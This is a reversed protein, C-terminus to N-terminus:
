SSVEEATSIVTGMDAGRRFVNLLDRPKFRKGYMLLGWRFLRASSWTILAISLLLIIISLVLQWIPVAGFGFRMIMAMPATFPVLSLILPVGSGPHEIFTIMFFYPIFLIMTIIGAYQRSEQESGVVAGIGAMLTATMAYGLLFFTVAMVVLDLPLTVGELFDVRSGGIVLAVIGAVLWVALQTLGLLGLGIIKGTLLQMPTVSTVLIEMIRNTKEEVLGSMLFGSTMQAALTFVVAFAIPMVVLPILGEEDLVRGSDQIHVTLEAPHAIRATPIAVEVGAAINSMLLQDIFWYLNDPLNDYSYLRVASSEMYDPEIVIYAEVHTNARDDLAARAAEDTDFRVFIHGFYQESVVADDILAPEANDVFGYRTDGNLDVFEESEVAILIAVTMVVVMLLPIGFATLLFSPKRIYYMYERQAITKIKNM